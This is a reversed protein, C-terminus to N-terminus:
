RGRKWLQYRAYRGRQLPLVAFDGNNASTGRRGRDQRKSSHSRTAIDNGNTGFNTQLKGNDGFVYDLHSGAGSISPASILLAAFVIAFSSEIYKNMKM